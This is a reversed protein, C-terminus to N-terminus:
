VVFLVDLVGHFLVDVEQLLDDTFAVMLGRTAMVRNAHKCQIKVEIKGSSIEWQEGGALDVELGDGGFQKAENVAYGRFAGEAGGARGDPVLPAIRRFNSM